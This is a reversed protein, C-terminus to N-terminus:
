RSVKWQSNNSTQTRHNSNNISKWRHSYNMGLRRWRCSSYSLPERTTLVLLAQSCTVKLPIVFHECARSECYTIQFKILEISPMDWFQFSKTPYLSCEFLNGSSVCDLLIAVPQILGLYKFTFNTRTKFKTIIAFLGKIILPWHTVIFSTDTLIGLWKFHAGNFHGQIM